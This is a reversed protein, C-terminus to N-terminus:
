HPDMSNPHVSDYIPDGIGRGTHHNVLDSDWLSLFVMGAFFIITFIMTRFVLSFGKFLTALFFAICLSRLAALTWTVWPNLTPGFDVNFAIVTLLIVPLFMGLFALNNERFHQHVHALETAHDHAHHEATRAADGQPDHLVGRIVPDQTTAGPQNEVSTSDHPNM